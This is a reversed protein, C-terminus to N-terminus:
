AAFEILRIYNGKDGCFEGGDTPCKHKRAYSWVRKIDVTQALGKNFM